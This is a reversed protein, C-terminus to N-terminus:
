VGLNPLSKIHHYKLALGICHTVAEIPLPENLSLKIARNGEFKLQDSYLERFTAVLKTNCNFFLFYNDPSKAKWDLRIPSGSKVAFSAEGWKLSETVDGCRLQEAVDFILQRIKLLADKAEPQYADFKDLIQQKM